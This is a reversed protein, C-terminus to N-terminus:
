AHFGVAVHSLISDALKFGQPARQVEFTCNVFYVDDMDLAGGNYIIRVNSFIVHKLRFGDLSFGIGQPVAPGQVLLFAPGIKANLNLTHGIKEMVAADSAPVHKGLVLTTNALIDAIKEFTIDFSWQLNSNAIPTFGKTSPSLSVNLFSKYNLFATVADWASPNKQAVEIFKKGANEVVEAPIATKEASAQTLIRKAEQINHPETPNVASLKVSLTDVSTKIYRIDSEMGSVRGSM